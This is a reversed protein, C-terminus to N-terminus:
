CIIIELIPLPTHTIEFALKSALYFQISDLLVHLLYYKRQQFHHIMIMIDYIM